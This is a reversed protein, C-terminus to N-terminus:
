NPAPEDHVLHGALVDYHAAAIVATAAACWRLWTDSAPVSIHTAEAAANPAIATNPLSAKSAPTVITVRSATRNASLAAASAGNAARRARRTGRRRTRCPPASPM